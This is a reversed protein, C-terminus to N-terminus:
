RPRGGGNNNNPIPPEFAFKGQSLAKVKWCHLEAIQHAWEQPSVIRFESEEKPWIQKVRFRSIDPVGPYAPNATVAHRYLAVYAPLTPVHGSALSRTVAAVKFSQGIDIATEVLAVPISRDLYEVWYTADVDVVKLLEALHIPVYRRISSPRHWLSYAQDRTGFREELSM